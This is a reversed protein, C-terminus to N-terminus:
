TEMERTLYKRFHNATVWVFGCCRCSLEVAFEFGDPPPAGQWDCIRKECIPCPVGVDKIGKKLKHAPRAIVEQISVFKPM